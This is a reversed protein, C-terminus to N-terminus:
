NNVSCSSHYHRSENLDSLVLWDDNIIDYVETKQGALEIEKRSGTVLILRNQVSCCAHGHRAYRMKSKPVFVFENGSKVLEKCEFM